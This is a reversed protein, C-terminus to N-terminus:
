YVLNVHSRPVLNTAPLNVFYFIFYYFFTIFFMHYVPLSNSIVKKGPSAFM